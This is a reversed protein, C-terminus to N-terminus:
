PSFYLNQIGTIILDIGIAGVFFSNLRVLIAMNKEYAVRLRRKSFQDKMFKLMLVTFMSISLSILLLILSTVLTYEHRMLITLSITGAGVMFPLAIESALDDLNEKVILLAKHGKVIYHYAYSFIVIGGFIRFSEFNIQIIETFLIDGIVLFAVFILLSILTAKILVYRFKKKDLEDMVPTLYFFLAFPNIMVIFGIITSIM